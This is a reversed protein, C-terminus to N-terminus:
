NGERTSLCSKKWNGLATVKPASSDTCPISPHTHMTPWPQLAELCNQAKHGSKQATREALSYEETDSGLAKNPESQQTIDALVMEPVELHRSGERQTKVFIQLIYIHQTPLSLHVTDDNQRPTFYSETSARSISLILVHPTAPHVLRVNYKM